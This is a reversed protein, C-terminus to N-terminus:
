RSDAGADIRGCWVFPPRGVMVGLPDSGICWQEPAPSKKEDRRTTDFGVGLGGLFRTRM